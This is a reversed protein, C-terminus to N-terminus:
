QEPKRMHPTAGVFADHITAKSSSMHSLFVDQTDAAIVDYFNVTKKQGTRWFRGVYQDKFANSWFRGQTLFHYTVCVSLIVGHSQGFLNIYECM